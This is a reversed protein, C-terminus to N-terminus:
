FPLSLGLDAGVVHASAPGWGRTVTASLGRWRLGARAVGVVPEAGLQWQVAGPSRWDIWRQWLGVRQAVTASWLGAETPWDAQVQVGVPIRETVTRRTFTGQIAAQYQIQGDPSRQRVNSNLVADNRHVGSWRLRSWADNLQLSLRSPAWGRVEPAARWTLQLSLADGVGEPAPPALFPSTTRADDDRLQGLYSYSDDANYTVSGQSHVTRLRQLRLHDWGVNLALAGWRVAPAHVAWGRGAWHRVRAGADYVGPESPDTKSQYHYVVQAADGSLVATADARALAGVRWVADRDADADHDPREGWQVGVEARAQAQARQTGSRRQYGESWDGSLGLVPLGNSWAQASVTSYAGWTRQPAQSARAAPAAETAQACALVPGALGWAVAAWRPM